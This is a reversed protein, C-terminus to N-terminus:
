AASPVATAARAPASRGAAGPDPLRAAPRRAVRHEDRAVPLGPPLDRGDLPRSPWTSSVSCTWGDSRAEHPDGQGRVLAVLRGSSWSSVTVRYGPGSCSRYSPTTASWSDTRGRSAPTAASRSTADSCRPSWGATSTASSRAPSCSRTSSRPTASRARGRRDGHLPRRLLREPERRRRHDGPRARVLARAPRRGRDRRTRRGALRDARGRAPDPDHRARAPQRRAHRRPPRHGEVLGQRHAARSAHRRRRPAPDRRHDRARRPGLARDGEGGRARGLHVHLRRGARPRDRPEAPKEVLRTVRGDSLEAVGYNEPDPVQTLLILADPRTTM